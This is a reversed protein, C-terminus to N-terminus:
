APMMPVVAVSAHPQRDFRSEAFLIILLAAMVGIIAAEIMIKTKKWRWRGRKM